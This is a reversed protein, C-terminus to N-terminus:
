EEAEIPFGDVGGGPEFLEVFRQACLNKQGPVHDVLEVAAPQRFELGVPQLIDAAAAFLQFDECQFKRAIRM